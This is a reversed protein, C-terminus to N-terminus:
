DGMPIKYKHHLGVLEIMKNFIEKMEDRVKEETQIINTIVNAYYRYQLAMVVLLLIIITLYIIHIM